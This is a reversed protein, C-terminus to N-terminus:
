ADDQGPVPKERPTLAFGNPYRLDVRAVRSAEADLGQHWVRTFREIRSRPRETGVVLDIPAGSLGEPRMSARWSRRESLELGELAIGAAALIERWERFRALVEQEHGAPGALRPLGPASYAGPLEIVRGQENLWAHEGWRAIPTQEHVRVQLTGPWQRRVEARHVWPMAEAANRVRELDVAFFNGSAHRRVEERLAAPDVHQLDGSVEVQQVPFAGPALLRDVAVVVVCFVALGALWGLALRRRRARLARRRALDRRTERKRRRAM